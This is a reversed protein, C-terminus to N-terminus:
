RIRKLAEGCCRRIKQATSDFDPLRTGDFENLYLRRNVEIMVAQVRKDKRYRSAPVLAGTFPHNVAVNWGANVFAVRFAAAVNDETHFDDTGICIDPRIDSVSTLEYPLAVAPFSHCDIVLCKGFSNLSTSVAVELQSHHPDYYRQILSKREHPQLPRRLPKLYSTM